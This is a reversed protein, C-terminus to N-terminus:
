SDWGYLRIIIWILSSWSWEESSHWPGSNLLLLRNTDRCAPINIRTKTIPSMYFNITKQSMLHKFWFYIRWLHVGQWRYMCSSKRHGSVKSHSKPILPPIIHTCAETCPLNSAADLCGIPVTHFIKFAVSNALARTGEASSLISELKLKLWFLFKTNESAVKVHLCTKTM